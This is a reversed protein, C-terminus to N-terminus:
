FAEVVYRGIDKTSLVAILIGEDDVVAAHGVGRSALLRIAKEVPALPDVVEYFRLTLGLCGAGLYPFRVGL